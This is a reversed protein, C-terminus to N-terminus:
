RADLVAPRALPIPNLGVDRVGSRARRAATPSRLRSSRGRARRDPDDTVGLAHSLGLRRQPTRLVFLSSCYSGTTMGVVGMTESRFGTRQRWGEFVKNAEFQFRLVEEASPTQAGSIVPPVVGQPPMFRAAAASSASSAPARAVKLLRPPSVEVVAVASPADDVHSTGQKWQCTFTLQALGGVTGAQDLAVGALEGGDDLIGALVEQVAPDALTEIVLADIPDSSGAEDVSARLRQLETELQAKSSM